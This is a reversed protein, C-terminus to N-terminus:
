YAQQPVCFDGAATAPRHMDAVSMHVSNHHQQQLPWSCNAFLGSGRSLSSRSVRSTVSMVPGAGLGLVGAARAAAARAAAAAAAPLAPLASQAPLQQLLEPSPAPLPLLLGPTSSTVSM